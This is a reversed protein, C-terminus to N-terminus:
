KPAYDEKGLTEGEKEEVQLFSSSSTEGEEECTKMGRSKM